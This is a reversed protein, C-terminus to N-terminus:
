KERCKANKKYFSCNRRLTKHTSTVFHLTQHLNCIVILLLIDTISDQSKLQVSIVSMNREWNCDLEESQKLQDWGLKLNRLTTKCLTHTDEMFTLAQSRLPPMSIWNGPWATCTPCGSTFVAWRYCAPSLCTSM